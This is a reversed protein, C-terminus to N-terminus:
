AVLVKPEWGIYDIGLRSSLYYKLLANEARAISDETARWERLKERDMPESGNTVNVNTTM